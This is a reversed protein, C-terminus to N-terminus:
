STRLVKANSGYLACIKQYDSETDVDCFYDASDVPVLKVCEPNTEIIQRAGMDGQLNKLSKQWTKWEFLVPTGRHNNYAPCIISRESCAYQDLLSNILESTVLPQDALLFM